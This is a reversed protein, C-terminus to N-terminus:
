LRSEQKPPNAPLHPNGDKLIPNGDVDIRHGHPQQAKPDGQKPHGLGDYREGTPNGNQDKVQWAKGDPRGEIREGPKLPVANGHPDVAISDKGGASDAAEGKVDGEEVKGENAVVAENPHLLQDVQNYILVGAGIGAAAVAVAPGVTALAAGEGAVVAGEGAVVAVNGAVAVLAALRNCNHVLLGCAFYNNHGQVELNFVPVEGEVIEKRELTILDGSIHLLQDGPSLNAAEVWDKKDAVYFPHNETAQIFINGATLNVLRPAVSEFVNTVQAFECTGGMVFLNCSVVTDGIRITSIPQSHYGRESDDKVAVLTDGPFCLADRSGYKEQMRALLKDQIQDVTRDSIESSLKTQVRDIIKKSARELEQRQREVEAKRAIEAQRAAEVRAAEAQRAIEAASPGTLPTHRPAQPIVGNLHSYTFVTTGNQMRHNSHYNQPYWVVDAPVESPHCYRNGHAEVRMYTTGSGNIIKVFDTAFGDSTAFLFLFFLFLGFCRFRLFM